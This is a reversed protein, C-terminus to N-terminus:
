PDNSSLEEYILTFFVKYLEMDYIDYEKNSNFILNLDSILLAKLRTLDTFALHTYVLRKDWVNPRILAKM